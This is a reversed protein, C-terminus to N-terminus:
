NPTETFASSYYDYQELISQTFAWAENFSVGGDEKIIIKTYLKQQHEAKLAALRQHLQVESVQQVFQGPEGLGYLKEGTAQSLEVRVVVKGAESRAPRILDRFREDLSDYEEQLSKFRQGSSELQTELAAVTEGRDGFLQQLAELNKTMETVKRELEQKSTQLSLMLEGRDTLDKSLSQNEDMQREATERLVRLQETLSTLKASLKIKDAESQDLAVSGKDARVVLQAKEALLLSIKDSLSNKVSEADQQSEALSAEAIALNEQTTKLDLAQTQLQSQTTELTGKTTSVDTLLANNKQQLEDRLKSLLSIEIELDAVIQEKTKLTEALTSRSKTVDDLTTQLSLVHDRVQALQEQLTMNAAQQRIVFDTAQDKQVITSQLEKVLAANRIMFTLLAMLFIMVVVTMIDTFSPWVSDEGPSGTGAHTIRLDVFNDGAM